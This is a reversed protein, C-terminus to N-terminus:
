QGCRPETKFDFMESIMEHIDFPKPMTLKDRKAWEADERDMRADAIKEASNQFSQFRAYAIQEDQRAREAFAKVLEEAQDAETTLKM